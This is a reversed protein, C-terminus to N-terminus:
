VKTINAIGGNVAIKEGQYIVLWIEGGTPLFINGSEAVPNEGIALYIDSKAVIRVLCDSNSDIAQTTAVSGATGDLDQSNEQSLRVIPIVNGNIDIVQKAM